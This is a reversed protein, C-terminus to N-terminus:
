PTPKPAATLMAAWARRAKRDVRYGEAIGVSDVAARVMAETPEVPVIRHGAAEIAALAARYRRRYMDRITSPETMWEARPHHPDVEYIARAVAEVLADTMAEAGEALRSFCVM